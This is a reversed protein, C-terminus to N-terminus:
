KSQKPTKPEFQYLIENEKIWGLEKRAMEEQYASDTKMRTIQKELQNNEKNKEALIQNM